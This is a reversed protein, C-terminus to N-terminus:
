FFRPDDWSVKRRKPLRTLGITLMGPGSGPRRAQRVRSRDPLRVDHDELSIRGIRGGRYAKNANAIRQPILITGHGPLGGVEKRRHNHLSIALEYQRAAGRSSGSWGTDLRKTNKSPEEMQHPDVFCRHHVQEIDEIWANVDIKVRNTAEQWM